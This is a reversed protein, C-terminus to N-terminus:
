GLMVLMGTHMRKELVAGTHARQEVAIHRDYEISSQERGYRLPRGPGMGFGSTLGKQTTYQVTTRFGVPFQTTTVNKSEIENAKPRSLDSGRMGSRKMEFLDVKEEIPPLRLPSKNFGLVIVIDILM